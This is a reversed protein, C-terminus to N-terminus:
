FCMEFKGIQCQDGSFGPLCTCSFTDGDASCTGGNLCTYVHCVDEMPDFPVFEADDSTSM